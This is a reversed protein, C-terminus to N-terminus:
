SCFFSDHSLLLSGTEASYTTPATVRGEGQHVSSTTPTPDCAGRKKREVREGETNEHLNIKTENTKTGNWLM